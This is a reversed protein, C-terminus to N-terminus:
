GRRSLFREYVLDAILVFGAVALLAPKQQAWFPTSSPLILLGGIAFAHFSARAMRSFLLVSVGCISYEINASQTNASEIESDEVKTEIESQTKSPWLALAVVACFVVAFAWLALADTAAIQPNWSLQALCFNTTTELGRYGVFALPPLAFM